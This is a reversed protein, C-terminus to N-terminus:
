LDDIILLWLLVIFDFMRRVRDLGLLSHTEFYLLSRLKQLFTRCVIKLDPGCWGDGVEFAAAADLFVGQVALHPELLRDGM